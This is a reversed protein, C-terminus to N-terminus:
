GNKQRRYKPYGICIKITEEQLPKPFKKSCKGDVMCLSNMNKVGCSGHVMHKTVISHLRPNIAIDSIEACIFKDIDENDKPKDETKLILLIHAHPLGRKQFEIVHIKAAPTGLVHKKGIDDM